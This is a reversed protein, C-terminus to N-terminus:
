FAWSLHPPMDHKLIPLNAQTQFLFSSEIGPDPLIWALLQGPCGPGPQLSRASFDSNQPLFLLSITTLTMPKPIWSPASGREVMAGGECHHGQDQYLPHYVAKGPGVRAM